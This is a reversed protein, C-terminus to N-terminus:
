NVGSETSTNEGLPLSSKTVRLTQQALVPSLLRCKRFAQRAPVAALQCFWVAM